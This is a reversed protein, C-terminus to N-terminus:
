GQVRGYRLPVPACVSTTIPARIAFRNKGLYHSPSSFHLVVHTNTDASAAFLGLTAFKTGTVILFKTSGDFLGCATQLIQFRNNLLSNPLLDAGIVHSSHRNRPLLRRLMEEHLRLPLRPLTLVRADGFCPVRNIFEARSRTYFVKPFQDFFVFHLDSLLFLM